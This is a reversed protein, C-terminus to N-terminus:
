PQITTPKTVSTVVNIGIQRFQNSGWGRLTRDPLIAMSCLGGATLFTPGALDLTQVLGEVAIENGNGLQGYFNYGWGWLTGDSKLAMSHNEGAAVRIVSGIELTQVPTLAPTANPPGDGLQGSARSGWGWVTGDSKAALTFGSGASVSVAGTLVQQATRVPTGAASGDGIQGSSNNGWTFVAGDGRLAVTHQLGSSISTIGTLGFVQVPPHQAVPGPAGTGLNGDSNYGWGWLTGDNRRAIAFHSGASVETFIGPLGLVKVPTPTPTASTTGQGLQGNMNDGWAWVSGDSKVAYSNVNTAAVATMGTLGPVQFPTPTYGALVVGNGLQGKGNDGWTWVTGDGRLAIVHTQSVAVATVDTFNPVQVPVNYNNSLGNGTQGFSSNGWSLVSGDDRLALAHMKGAAIATVSRLGPILTPSPTVPTQTGLASQGDSNYGWAMVSGDLLLAYSTGAGASVAIAEGVGPVPTPKAVLAAASSIGLLGQDNVGWIWVSGDTRVVMSHLDGGAADAVGTLNPVQVPDTVPSVSETGQGLQGKTNDGWCWLTGDARVALSHLGGAAVARVNPLGPVQFPVTVPQFDAVGNGVQGFRNDGWTWVTGDNKLALTHNRGVSLAVMNSLGPVIVPERIPSGASSFGQGLQGKDNRGWAWVTGDSRLAVSHAEGVVASTVEDLGEVPTPIATQASIRGNGLQGFTNNGFGWLIGDQLVALSGAGPGTGVFKANFGPRGRVEASDASAGFQNSACVVYFYDTQNTLGLDIYTTPTTFGTPTSVPFYPGGSTLSRKVIFTSGSSPSSWTLTVRKNGPLAAVATPIAPAVTPTLTGGGGVGCAPLLLGILLIGFARAHGITV